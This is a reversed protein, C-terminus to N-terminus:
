FIGNSISFQDNCRCFFSGGFELFGSGKVFRHRDKYRLNLLGCVRGALYDLSQCNGIFQDSSSKTLRQLIEAASRATFPRRAACARKCLQDEGALDLITVGNRDGRGLEADREVALDRRRSLVRRRGMKGARGRSLPSGPILNGRAIAKQIGANAPMLPTARTLLIFPSNAADAPNEPSSSSLWPASRRTSSLNTVVGAREKSSALIIRNATRM